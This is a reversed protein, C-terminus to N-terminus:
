NLYMECLRLTFYRDGSLSSDSKFLHFEPLNFTLIEESYAVNTGTQNTTGEQRRNEAASYEVDCLWLFGLCTM